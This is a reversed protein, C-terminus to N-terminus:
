LIWSYGTCMTSRCLVLIKEHTQVIHSTLHCYYTTPPLLHCHTRLPAPRYACVLSVRMCACLARVCLACVIYMCCACVCWRKTLQPRPHNSRDNTCTNNQTQPQPRPRPRPRSLLQSLRAQKRFESCGMWDGDKGLLPTGRKRSMIPVIHPCYPYPFHGLTSGLPHSLLSLLSDKAKPFVEGAWDCDREGEEGHSQSNHTHRLTVTM